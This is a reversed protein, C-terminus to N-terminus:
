KHLGRHERMEFLLGLFSRYYPLFKGEDYLKMVKDRSAWMIDDLEDKGYNITSIDADITVFYFDDFGNPFNITFYPREGKLNIKLGLEELTEREGGVSSSEGAVVSGGVSIDWVSPWVKKDARRKQILMEGKNNFVCVHVVLRNQGDVLESGRALSKGTLRRDDSYVDFM